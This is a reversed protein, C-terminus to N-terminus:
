RPEKVTHRPWGSCAAGPFATSGSQLRATAANGTGSGNCPSGDTPCGVNILLNGNKSVVDVLLRILGAGSLCHRADEDQNYGFSFGLGRTAEFVEDQVGDIEMYERTLFGHFPVGWRDNVVGDPETNYTSFHVRGCANYDFTM